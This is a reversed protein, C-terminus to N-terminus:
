KDLLFDVLRATSRGSGYNSDLWFLTLDDFTVRARRLTKDATVTFGSDKYDDTKGLSIVPANSRVEYNDRALFSQGDYYLVPLGEWEGDKPLFLISDDADLTVYGDMSLEGDFEASSAAIWVANEYPDYAYETQTRRLVLDGFSDNVTLKSYDDQEATGADIVDQGFVEPSTQSDWGKGDSIVAYVYDDTTVRPDGIFVADKLETVDVANGYYDYCIVRGTDIPFVYWIDASQLDEVSLAGSDLRQYEDPSNERLEGLQEAADNVHGKYKASEVLILASKGDSYVGVGDYFDTEFNNKIEGSGSVKKTKGILNKPAVLGAYRSEGGYISMNKGDRKLILDDPAASLIGYIDGDMMIKCDSDPTESIETISESVVSTTVVAKTATTTEIKTQESCGTVCFLFACVALYKITKKM